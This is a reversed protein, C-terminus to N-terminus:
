GHSHRTPGASSSCSRGTVNGSSASFPRRMWPVPCPARVPTHTRWIRAFRAPTLGRDICDDFYDAVATDDFAVTVPTCTQKVTQFNEVYLPQKEASIAFGGVETDGAHLFFLFKLWALPSFTVAAPEERRRHMPFALPAPEPKEM